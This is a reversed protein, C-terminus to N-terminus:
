CRLPQRGYRRFRQSASCAYGPQEPSFAISIGSGERRRVVTKGRNFALFNRAFVCLVAFCAFFVVRATANRKTPFHVITKRRREVLENTALYAYEQDSITGVCRM